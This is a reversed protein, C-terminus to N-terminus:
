GEIKGKNSAVVCMSNYGIMKTRLLRRVSSFHFSKLFCEHNHAKDEQRLAHLQSSFSFLFIRATAFSLRWM